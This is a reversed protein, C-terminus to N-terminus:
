SKHIPGDVWCNLVIPRDGILVNAKLTGFHRFSECLELIESNKNVRTTFEYRCPLKGFKTAPDKKTRKVLWNTRKIRPGRFVPHIRSLPIHIEKAWDVNISGYYKEALERAVYLGPSVKPVSLMKLPLMVRNSTPCRFGESSRHWTSMMGSQLKHSSVILINYGREPDVLGRGWILGVAGNQKLIEHWQSLM